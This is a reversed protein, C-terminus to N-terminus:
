VQHQDGDDSASAAAGAAAEEDDYVSPAGQMQQGPPATPLMQPQQMHVMPSLPYVPMSMQVHPAQLPSFAQQAGLPSALANYNQMQM